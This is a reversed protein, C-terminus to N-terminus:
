FKEYKSFVQGQKPFKREFIIYFCGASSIMNFIWRRYLFREQNSCKRKDFVVSIELEAMNLKWEEQPWRAGMMGQSVNM